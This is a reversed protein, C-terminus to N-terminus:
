SVWIAPRTVPGLMQTDLTEIDFGRVGLDAGGATPIFADEGEVSASSRHWGLAAYFAAAREVDAVGLTVLTTRAPIAM